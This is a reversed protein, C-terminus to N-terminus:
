VSMHTTLMLKVLDQTPRVFDTAGEVRQLLLPTAATAALRMFKIQAADFSGERGEPVTFRMQDTDFNYTVSQSLKQGDADLFLDPTHGAIKLLRFSFWLRILAIDIQNDDLSAFSECLLNFYDAEPNDQTAKDILKIFEYGADSRELDKVINGFHRELRTSTITDIDKKGKIFSIESVSFLELGGALKSKPKRVAKAIATLKGQVPTIFTIIRDAEGYNVRRLAIALTNIQNPAPM